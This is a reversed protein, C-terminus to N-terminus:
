QVMHLTDNVQPLYHVLIMPWTDVSEKNVLANVVVAVFSFAMTANVLCLLVSFRVV